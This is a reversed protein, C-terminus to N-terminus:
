EARRRQLLFLLALERRFIFTLLLDLKRWGCRWTLVTDVPIYPM